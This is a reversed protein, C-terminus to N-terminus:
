VASQARFWITLLVLGEQQGLGQRKATLQWEKDIVINIIIAFKPDQMRECVYHNQISPHPPTNYDIRSHLWTYALTSLSSPLLTDFATYPGAHFQKALWARPIRNREWSDEQHRKKSRKVKLRMNAPKSKKSTAKVDSASKRKRGAGKARTTFIEVEAALDITSIQLDM